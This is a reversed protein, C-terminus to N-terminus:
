YSRGSLQKEKRLANQHTEAVKIIRTATGNGNTALQLPDSSASTPWQTVIEAVESPQPSTWGPLGHKTDLIRSLAVL